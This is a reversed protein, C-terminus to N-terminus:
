VFRSTNRNQLLHRKRGSPPDSTRGASRASGGQRQEFGGSGLAVTGTYHHLDIGYIRSLTNMLDHADRLMDYEDFADRATALTNEDANWLLGHLLSHQWEEIEGDRYYLQSLARLVAVRDALMGVGSDRGSLSAVAQV